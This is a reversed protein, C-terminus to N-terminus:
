ILLRIYRAFSGSLKTAVSREIELSPARLMEYTAPCVGASASDGTNEYDNIDNLFFIFRLSIQGTVV